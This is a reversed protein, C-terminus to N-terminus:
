ERPVYLSFKRSAADHTYVAVLATRVWARVRFQMVLRGNEDSYDIVRSVIHEWCIQRVADSYFSYKM